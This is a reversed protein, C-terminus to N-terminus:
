ISHLDNIFTNLKWIPVVFIENEKILNEDHLTVLLPHTSYGSGIKLLKQAIPNKKLYNKFEKAREQQLKAANKLGSKKYRGSGWWKCDVCFIQSNKVAIIDIEYRRKTKFRFNQKIGFGNTKFMEAVTKEFVKWDYRELIDEFSKGHSLEEALHELDLM